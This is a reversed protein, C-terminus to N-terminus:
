ASNDAIPSANWSTSRKPPRTRAIATHVLLVDVWPGIVWFPWFYQLHGQAAATATWILLCIVLTLTWPVWSAWSAWSPQNPWLAPAFSVRRPPPSPRAEAPLDAPVTDLDARTAAAYATDLRSEFEAMTLRGASLRRGLAAAVDERDADGIRLTPDTTPDLSSM